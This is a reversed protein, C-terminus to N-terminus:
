RGIEILVTKKSELEEFLLNDDDLEGDGYLPISKWCYPTDDPVVPLGLQAIFQGPFGNIEPGEVGFISPFLYVMSFASDDIDHGMCNLNFRDFTSSCLGSVAKGYEVCRSSLYLGMVARACYKARPTVPVAAPGIFNLYPDWLVRPSNVVACDIKGIYFLDSLEGVEGEFWSKYFDVLLDHWGSTEMFGAKGYLSFRDVARWPASKNVGEGRAHFKGHYSSFITSVQEVTRTKVLGSLIFDINFPDLGRKGGRELREQFVKALDTPSRKKAPGPPIPILSPAVWAMSERLIPEQTV